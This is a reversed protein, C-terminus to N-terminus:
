KLGLRLDDAKIINRCQAKFADFDELQVEDKLIDMRREISLKNGDLSVKLAYAIYDSNYVQDEPIETTKGEPLEVVMTERYSEANFVDWLEVNSQRDDNSLFPLNDVYDSFPIKFIALGSIRTFVSPIRMQYTYEVDSDVDYLGKTFVLDSVKADPIDSAVAEQMEELRTEAGLDEMWNRVGSANVGTKRSSRTVQMDEGDFRIESQRFSQNRVRNATNTLVMAESPQNKVSPIGLVFSHNVSAYLASFPLNDDTLELYYDEGDIVTHAICHNFDISPLAMDKIGNDRSNVLVLNADIGVAKCMSVFLTSVDKCDGQKTNIVESAKQPVLGSQIFSVSSYRINNVIYDYIKRVKFLDSTGATDAFLTNVTEQVEYNVKTKAYALDSYWDAVYTWDPITSIHLVPSFDVLEPMYYEPKLGAVNNREWVYLKGGDVEEIRPELDFNETRYTFEKGDPILLSYRSTGLPYFYAFYAKDWFHQSLKGSYYNQLKYVIHIGDGSELNEFVLEAGNRQADLKTGNAKIVEAKEVTGSQNSYTPITYQKWDDVGSTNYIKILLERKFESGGNRYVVNQTEDLLIISNDEPFSDAPLADAFMQYADTPAFTAFIDEKGEASRLTAKLDYDYPSYVLATRYADIARGTQNRAAYIKGLGAYYQGVYPALKLCTKLSQEAEDYMQMNFYLDSLQKHFGVALPNHIILNQFTKIGKPANGQDFYYTALQKEAELSYHSRTYKDMIKIAEKTNNKVKKEVLSKFYVFNYHDPYADYAADLYQMMKESEGKAAALEIQKTYVNASNGERATIKELLTDCTNYDKIRKAEAYLIEQALAREPFKTKLEDLYTSLATRNDDRRYLDLIQFLLYSSDPFKARASLLIKKAEYTMDNQLLMQALILYNEMVDPSELMKERFYEGAPNPVVTSQFDDSPYDHVVDTTTLGAINEGAPDTIRVLFNSADIESSGIQVLVRNYGKKLRGTFVYTDLGNNREEPESFLLNDNVWFKLSGSTGVRFQVEQDQPSEVFTQAYIIANEIYFHYDLYCWNDYRIDSIPFWKVDAGRKNKFVYDGEPHALVGFDADFGSESINEFEGVLKWNKLAGTRAFYGASKSFDGISRYHYGLSQLAKAKLSGQENKVVSELFDVEKDSRKSRKITWLAEIYPQPHKAYRYFAHYAESAETDHSGLAADVLSLGLYAKAREPSDTLSKFVSRAEELKDKEFLDWATAIDTDQAAM